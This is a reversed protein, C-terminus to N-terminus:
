RSDRFATFCGRGPRITEVRYKVAGPCQGGLFFVTCTCKVSRANNVGTGSFMKVSCSKTVATGHTRPLSAVEMHVYVAVRVRAHRRKRLPDHRFLRRKKPRQRAAWGKPHGFPPSRPSQRAYVLPPWGHWGAMRLGHATTPARPKMAPAPM